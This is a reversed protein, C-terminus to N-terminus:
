QGKRFRWWRRRRHGTAPLSHTLTFTLIAGLVSATIAGGIQRFFQSASTAQGMLQPEIANQIALTYLPMTPGLGIGCLLLYGLVQRYSVTVPMTALLSM